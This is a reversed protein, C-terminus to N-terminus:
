TTTLTIWSGERIAIPHLGCPWLEVRREREIGYETQRNLGTITHTVSSCQFKSCFWHQPFELGAGNPKSGSVLVAQVRIARTNSQRKMGILSGAHTHYSGLSAFSRLGRYSHLGLKAPRYARVPHFTPELWWARKLSIKYGSSHQM